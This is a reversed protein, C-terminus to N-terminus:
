VNDQYRSIDQMCFSIVSLVSGLVYDAQPECSILLIYLYVHFLICYFTSVPQNYLTLSHTPNLTGSSVSYTM